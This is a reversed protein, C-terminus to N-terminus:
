RKILSQYHSPITIFDSKEVITSTVNFGYQAYQANIKAELLRLADEAAEDDDEIEAWVLVKADSLDLGLNNVKVDKAGLNEIYDYVLKKIFFTSSSMRSLHALENETSNAIKHYFKAKHESATNTELLLFDTNIEAIFDEFWSKVKADLQDNPTNILSTM